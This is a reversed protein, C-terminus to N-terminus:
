EHTAIFQHDDEIGIELFAGDRRGEVLEEPDDALAAAADVLDVDPAPATEGVLDVVLDLPDVRDEVDRRLRGGDLLEVPLEVEVLRHKARLEDPGARLLPRSMAPSVVIVTTPLRVSSGSSRKVGLPAATAFKVTADVGRKRSLCVLSHFSPSASKRRQLMQRCAASFTASDSCRPARTMTCPRSRCRDYSVLSPSFRVTSSTSTSSIPGEM